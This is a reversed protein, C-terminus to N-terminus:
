CGSTKLFRDKRTEDLPEEAWSGLDRWIEIAFEINQRIKEPGQAFWRKDIENRIGDEKKDWNKQLKNTCAALSKWSKKYDETKASESLSNM